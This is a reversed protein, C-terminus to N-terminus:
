LQSKFYHFSNVFADRIKETETVMNNWSTESSLLLSEFKEKALVSQIKIKDVELNYRLRADEQMDIASLELQHLQMNLADLEQRMRDLYETRSQM